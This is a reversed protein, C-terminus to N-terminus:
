EPDLYQTNPFFSLIIRAYVLPIPIFFTCLTEIFFHADRSFVLFCAKVRLQGLFEIWSRTSHITATASLLVVSCCPHLDNSYRHRWWYHGVTQVTDGISAPTATNLFPGGFAITPGSASVSSVSRSLIRGSRGRPLGYFMHCPRSFTVSSSTPSLIRVVSSSRNTPM